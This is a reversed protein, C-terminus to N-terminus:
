ADFRGGVRQCRDSLRSAERLSGTSGRDVRGCVGGLWHALRNGERELSALERAAAAFAKGGRQDGRAYPIKPRRAGAGTPADKTAHADALIAQHLDVALRVPAGAHHLEIPGYRHPALAERALQGAGPGAR